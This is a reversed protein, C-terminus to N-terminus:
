EHFQEKSIGALKPPFHRQLPTWYCSIFKVKVLLLVYVFLCGDYNSDGFVCRLAFAAGTLPALDIDKEYVLHANM